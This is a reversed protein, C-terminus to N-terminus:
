GYIAYHNWDPQVQLRSLVLQGVHYNDHGVVFEYAHKLSADDGKALVATIAEARLRFFEKKLNESSKDAIRFTGWSHKDGRCSAVLAVYAEGLHELLDRPTMAGPGCPTDMGAEPMGDLCATLMHGVNDIEFRLLDSATM